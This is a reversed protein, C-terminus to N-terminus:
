MSSDIYDSLLEGVSLNMIEHVDSYKCIFTLDKGGDHGVYLNSFSYTEGDEFMAKSIIELTKWDNSDTM